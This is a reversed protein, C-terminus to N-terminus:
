RQSLVIQLTGGRRYVAIRKVTDMVYHQVSGPPCDRYIALLLSLDFCRCTHPAEHQGKTLGKKARQSCLPYVVCLHSISIHLGKEGATVPTQFLFLPASFTQFPCRSSCLLELHPSIWRRRSSNFHIWVVESFLESAKKKKDVTLSEAKIVGTCIKLM